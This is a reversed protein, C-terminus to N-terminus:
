AFVGIKYPKLYTYTQGDEDTYAVEREGLAAEYISQCEPNDFIYENNIVAGLVRISSCLDVLERPIGRTVCLTKGDNTYHVPVKTANFTLGANDEDVTFLGNRPDDPTNAIQLGEAVFSPLDEVYTILDM